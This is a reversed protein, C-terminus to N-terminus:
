LILMSDGFSYFRFKHEIAYQYAQYVLERGAFASVLVLHSSRPLHFNTILRDAVKFKYGPAIFLDTTGEGQQVVGGTAVTELARVVGTGCAIVRCEKNRAENIQAAAAQPVSYYELPLTHEELREERIPRFSGLGMHLTIYSIAVGKKQIAQLLEQTFHLAATPAASSGEREAFVTQYREPDSLRRKIYPPLPVEGSTRIAQNGAEPSPFAIIRGGYGTRELVTVPIEQGVFIETGPALKRGPRVLAEWRGNGLDKLLLLEVKGGGHGRGWLRAPMVRTDNLVLVDGPTLFGLIQSFCGEKITKDARDVVLLRSSDRPEVPTQAILEQPLYYEFEKTDM